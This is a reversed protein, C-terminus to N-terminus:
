GNQPWGLDDTDQDGQAPRDDDCNGLVSFHMMINSLGDVYDQFEQPTGATYFSQCLCLWFRGSHQRDLDMLDSYSGIQDAIDWSM